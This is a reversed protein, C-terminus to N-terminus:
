GSNKETGSAADPRERGLDNAAEALEARLIVDVADRAAADGRGEARLHSNALLSLAAHAARLAAPHPALAAVNAALTAADGRAVPGTLAALGPRALANELSARSLLALAEEPRDIGAGRLVDAAGAFLVLLLNGGLTAAAHYAPKAGPALRQFSGGVARSLSAAVALAADDGEAFFPIGAPAPTGPADASAPALTALPHWSAVAAGAAHLPALEHSTLAGSLHLAVRGTWPGAAVALAAAVGPIAADGVAVVVVSAERLGDAPVGPSGLSPVGLIVARRAASAESRGALGAVPWGAARLALLLASGAAGAGVFALAPRSERTM